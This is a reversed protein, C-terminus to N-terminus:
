YYKFKFLNQRCCIMDHCPDIGFYYEWKEHLKADEYFSEEIVNRDKIVSILKLDEDYIYEYLKGSGRYHVKRHLLDERYFYEYELKDNIYEKKVQGKENYIYRFNYSRNQYSLKKIMISDSKYAYNIENVEGNRSNCKEKLLRGLDDYEFIRKFKKEDRLTEQIILRGFDDYKYTVITERGFFLNSYKIIQHEKDYELLIKSVIKTTDEQCYKEISKLPYEYLEKFYQKQANLELSNVTFIIVLFLSFIKM